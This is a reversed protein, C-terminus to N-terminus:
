PAELICSRRHPRDPTSDGKRSLTGFLKWIRAPNFVKQDIVVDKTDFRAALAKLIREVLGGDDAPLDIRYLLHFGNGSDALVPAPWGLGVSLYTRVNLIINFASAKEADTSSIGAVRVPDADVPLWRRCLVHADKTTEDERVVRVRNCIRALLEPNIPNPVFYVGKAQGSLRLAEVAMDELHAHDFFGAVTQPRGWRQQVDLARLETVQGPEVFLRLWAAVQATDIPHKGATGADPISM